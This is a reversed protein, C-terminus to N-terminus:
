HARLVAWGRKKMRATARAPDLTALYNPDDWPRTGTRDPPGLSPGLFTRALSFISYGYGKLVCMADTPYIGFDEFVIDRVAAGQLLRAAGRLVASEHGEVDLKAVGIRTNEGLLEDLPACEVACKREGSGIKSEAPMVAAVGRNTLWDSPIRLFGLARVDSAALNHLDVPATGSIQRWRGVNRSLEGFLEPHAEIALVRGSSGARAAMLSTVYGVHAGADLGCEGPDLLRWITETMVLDYIGKRRLARAIMEGPRIEIELGWPLRVVDFTDSTGARTGMRRFLQGPRFIYEPASM